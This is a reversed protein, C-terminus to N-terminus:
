VTLYFRVSNPGDPLCNGYFICIECFKLVMKCCIKHLFLCLDCMTTTTVLKKSSFFSKLSYQPLELSINLFIECFYTLDGKFNQRIECIKTGLKHCTHM